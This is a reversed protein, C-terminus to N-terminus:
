PASSALSAIAGYGIAKGALNDLMRVELQTNPDIEELKRILEIARM